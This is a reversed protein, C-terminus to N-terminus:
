EEVEARRGMVYQRALKSALRRHETPEDATLGLPKGEIREGRWRADLEEFRRVDSATVKADDM